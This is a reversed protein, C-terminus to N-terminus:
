ETKSYLRGNALCKLKGMAVITIKLGKKLNKKIHFQLM